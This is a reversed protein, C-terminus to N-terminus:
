LAMRAVTHLNPNEGYFTFTNDQQWCDAASIESHNQLSDAVLGVLPGVVVGKRTTENYAIWTRGDTKNSQLAVMHSLDWDHDFEWIGLDGIAHPQAHHIGSNDYVGRLEKKVLRKARNGDSSHILTLPDPAKCLLEWAAEPKRQRILATLGSSLLNYASLSFFDVQDSTKWKTSAWNVEELLEGHHHWIWPTILEPQQRFVCSIAMLWHQDEPIDNGMVKYVAQGLHNQDTCNQDWSKPVFMKVCDDPELSLDAIWIIDVENGSALQWLRAAVLCDTHMYVGIKKSM